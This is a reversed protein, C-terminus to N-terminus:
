APVRTYLIPGHAETGIGFLGSFARARVPGDDWIIQPVPPTLHFVVPELESVWRGLMERIAADELRMLRALAVRVAHDVPDPRDPELNLPTHFM